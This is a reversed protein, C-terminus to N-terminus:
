PLRDTQGLSKLASRLAFIVNWDDFIRHFLYQRKLKRVCSPDKLAGLAFAAARRVLMNSDNIRRLLHPTARKDASYGLVKCAVERVFSDKSALLGIMMPVVEPDKRKLLAKEVSTGLGEWSLNELIEILIPLPVEEAHGLLGRAARIKIKRNRSDYLKLWEQISPMAAKKQCGAIM